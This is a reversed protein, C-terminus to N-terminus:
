KEYVIHKSLLVALNTLILDIYVNKDILEISQLIQRRVEELNTYKINNRFNKLRDSLDVNYKVDLGQDLLQVDRLWRDLSLLIDKLLAKNKMRDCKKIFQYVKAQNKVTIQLLFEDLAQSRAPDGEMFINKARVYSGGSQAAITKAKAEEIDFEETLADFIESEKLPPFYFAQCRSLVTPLLSEFRSTVLCIYLNEPPEELLKLLTNQAINNMLDAPSILAFRNKGMFPSLSSKVIIKKVQANLIGSAGPYEIKYYLDQTKKEIERRYNELEKESMREEWDVISSDKKAPDKVPFLFHFDSHEFKMYLRCAKCQGCPPNEDSCLLIRGLVLAAAEKGTGEPGYFLMSQPLKGAHYLKRLREKVQSHGVVGPLFDNNNM